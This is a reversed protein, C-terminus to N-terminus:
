TLFAGALEALELVSDAVGELGQRAADTMLLLQLRAEVELGWM